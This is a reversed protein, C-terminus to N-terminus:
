PFHKENRIDISIQYESIWIESIMSAILELLVDTLQKYGLTQFASPIGVTSSIHERHVAFWTFLRM